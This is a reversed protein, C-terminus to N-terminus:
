QWGQQTWEGFNVNLDMWKEIDVIMVSVDRMLVVSLSEKIPNGNRWLGRKRGGRWVVALM